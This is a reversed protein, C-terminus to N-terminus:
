LQGRIAAGNPVLMVGVRTSNGENSGDLLWLTAAAGLGAIGVVLGVNAWTQERRGREIVTAESAPCTGAQCQQQLSEYDNKSLTGLVAFSGMGVVGVGASLYAYPLLSPAPKGTTVGRERPAAVVPLAKRAPEAEIETDLTVERKAGPSLDLQERQTPHGPTILELEVAGAMVPVPEGWATRRIEEGNVILRTLSSPRHITTSVFALNQELEQREETAAQATRQYRVERKGLELAQVMTRGYEAYAQVQRELHLLCRARYLRANPSAVIAFSATFEDLAADYKGAEFYEKGRAFRAQAQEQQVPSADIPDAGQAYVASNEKSAAGQANQALATLPSVALTTLVCLLVRFRRPKM